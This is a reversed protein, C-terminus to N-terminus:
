GLTMYLEEQDSDEHIHRDLTQYHSATLYGEDECEKSTKKSWDFVRNKINHFRPPQERSELNGGSTYPGNSYQLFPEEITLSQLSSSMPDYCNPFAPVRKRIDQFSCSMDSGNAIGYDWNGCRCASPEREKDVETPQGRGTPKALFFGSATSVSATDPPSENAVCHESMVAELRVHPLRRRGPKSTYPGNSYQLCPEEITLSQLSSSMPAYCNPLASVGKRIDQLSCSSIDSGNAIGYGWNGFRYAPHRREKDVETPQGRGTPKALFIGSATSVSASDPLSENAVCHESMVAERHNHPRRRRGPKPRMAVRPKGGGLQMPVTSLKEKMRMIIDVMNPRHSRNLQWCHQLLSYFWYPCSIPRDLSEESLKRFVVEDENVMCFPVSLAESRTPNNDWLHLLTLVEWCMVAWMYVDSQPSYVGDIIAEAPLWRIRNKFSKRKIFKGSQTTNIPYKCMRGLRPMFVQFTRSDVFSKAVLITEASIDRHLWGNEHYENIREAVKLCVDLYLVTIDVSVVEYISYYEPLEKAMAAEKLTKGFPYISELTYPYTKGPSTLPEPTMDGGTNTFNEAKLYPLMDTVFDKTVPELVLVNDVQETITLNDISSLERPQVQPISSPIWMSFSQNVYPDKKRMRMIELPIGKEPVHKREKQSHSIEPYMDDEDLVEQIRFRTVTTTTSKLIEQVEQKLVRLEVREKAEHKTCRLILSHVRDPICAWQFPQIKHFMVLKLIDERKKGYLETYPECGHTWIGYATLGLAYVDSMKTFQGKWIAEWPLWLTPLNGPSMDEKPTCAYSM